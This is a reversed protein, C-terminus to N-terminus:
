STGKALSQKVEKPVNSESEDAFLLNLATTWKEYKKYDMASTKGYVKVNKNYNQRKRGFISSFLPFEWRRRM